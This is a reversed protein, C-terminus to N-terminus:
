DVLVKTASCWFHAKRANRKTRREPTAIKTGYYGLDEKFHVELGTKCQKLHDLKRNRIERNTKTIVKSGFVGPILYELQEDVEPVLSCDVVKYYFYTKQYAQGSDSGSGSTLKSTIELKFGHKELDAEDLMKRMQTDSVKVYDRDYIRMELSEETDADAINWLCFVALFMVLINLTM